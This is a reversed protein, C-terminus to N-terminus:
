ARLYIKAIEKPDVVLNEKDDTTVIRFALIIDLLFTFDIVGNTITFALGDMEPPSFAVKFPITFCNFCAAAMIYLNWKSIRPDNQMFIYKGPIHKNKMKQEEEEKERKRKKIVISGM